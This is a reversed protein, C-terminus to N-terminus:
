AAEGLPDRGPKRRGPRRNTKKTKVDAPEDTKATLQTDSAILAEFAREEQEMRRRIKSTREKSLIVTAELDKLTITKGGNRYARNLSRMLWDKLIGVCGLSREYLFQRHEILNPETPVPMKRQFSYIVNAFVRLDRTSEHYRRFHLPLTRRMLQDSLDLLDAMEYTGMLVHIVGTTNAISKICDMQDQLKYGGCRILHQAEDVFVAFPKRHILASELAFRLKNGSVSRYSCVLRYPDPKIPKIDIKQDILPEYLARLVREYFGNWSFQLKDRAIVETSVVPIRGRDWEADEKQIRSWEELIESEILKRLFTKGVGTPGIVTLISTGAPLLIANRLDAFLNDLLEHAAVYDEFYKM